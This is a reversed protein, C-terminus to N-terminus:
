TAYIKFIAIKLRHPHMTEHHQVHIHIYIYLYDRFKTVRCVVNERPHSLKLNVSSLQSEGRERERIKKFIERVVRQRAGCSRYAFTTRHESWKEHSFPLFSGSLDRSGAFRSRSRGADTGRAEKRRMRPTESRVADKRAYKRAYVSERM